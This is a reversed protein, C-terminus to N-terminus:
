RLGPALWVDKLVEYFDHVSDEHGNEFRRRAKALPFAVLGGGDSVGPEGEEEAVIWTGGLNRILVEGVYAGVVPAMDLFQANAKGTAPAGRDAWLEDIM